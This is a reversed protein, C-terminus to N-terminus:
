NKHERQKLTKAIMKPYKKEINEWDNKEIISDLNAFYGDVRYENYQKEVEEDQLQSFHDNYLQSLVLEIDSRYANEIWFDIHFIDDERRFEKILEYNKRGLGIIYGRFDRFGDNSVYINGSKLEDVSSFNVLHLEIISPILLEDLKENYIKDFKLVEKFPEKILKGKILQTQIEERFRQNHIKLPILDILSILEWFQDENM